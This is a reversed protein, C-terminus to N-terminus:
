GNIKRRLLQPQWIHRCYPLHVAPSSNKVTMWGGRRKWVDYGVISSIQDIDQRTYVRNLRVLRKCFDRSTAIIDSGSIGPAKDYKWMTVIETQVGSNDLADVGDPQIEFVNDTYSLLGRQIMSDVQAQIEAIPKNINNALDQITIGKNSYIWQLIMTQLADGFQMPVSEFNDADEGFQMFVQLDKDDDWGFPNECAKCKHSSMETPTNSPVNGDPIAPLGAISRIENITMQEIVKNAVLPSLNNISDVVTKQDKQKALGLENRAEDLSMLGKTYLETYDLGIPPKNQTRLRVPAIYKFISTLCRDLQAQRPEIYSTQFAEYAEILENRGGLQGETKIGFLMPSTVRHAMLIEEQVTKNLIDFQKDFDSPALNNVQSPTENPDNFQIIISGANSTGSFNEKFRKMTNRAEEPTPIGKFLQLLTQASFGSKISNLHFNAIETDIEIYKLASQYPATPYEGCGAKYMKFFYLQKAERTTPNYPYYIIPEVRRNSWDDSYLYNGDLGIRVNQFPLHYIEAISTKAKNWIIELAFGDFLEVDQAIKNKVEDFSEYANINNLYDNAKAVDQTNAGIIETKDGALFAAKQTVIAGHKPSSNYFDILMQPYANDEGYTLYGKAKNEKFIPIKSEAFNIRLFNSEM